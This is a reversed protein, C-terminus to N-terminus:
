SFFQVTAIGHARLPLEIESWAGEGPGFVAACARASLEELVEGLPDCLAARAVRGAVRLRVQSAQGDFEVLRVAFVTVTSDNTIPREISERASAPECWTATALVNHPEVSLAGMSEPLEGGGLIEASQVFRPNGLTCEMARRMRECDLMGAHPVIWLDAMLGADFSNEDLPDVSSLLHAVGGDIRSFAPSGDHVYLMGRSHDQSSLDVFRLSNFPRELIDVARTGGDPLAARRERDSPAVIREVGFPHDACVELDGALRPRLLMRLGCRAGVDPRPLEETQVRIWVADFLPEIAVQLTLTVGGRGTRRITLEDTEEEENQSTTVEAESFPEERGGRELSFELLPHAKDLLGEPFERTTIQEIVGRRRDVEVRMRGRVLAIRESNERVRVRGLPAVDLDYPDVVKYGFAPVERAVGSDHLVDRTWGLPNLVLHGGELGQVNRALQQLMREHVEQALALSREISSEAVAALRQERAAVAHHQALFLDRWSEELEWAPWEAAGPEVEPLRAVLSALAEAALLQEECWTVGRVLLDGNKAPAGGHFFQTSSFNRPLSDGLKSLQAALASFALATFEFRKDSRLSRLRALVAESRASECPLWVLLATAKPEKLAAELQAEWEDGSQLALSLAQAPVCMLESGDAGSWAISGAAERPVIAAYEELAPELGLVRAGMARLLQPLQPHGGVAGEWLELPRRGLLRQLVRAGLVRQRLTSESGHGSCEPQAFSAGTLELQGRELGARLDALVQPSRAALEEIGRADFDLACAAGHEAGAQLALELARQLVNENSCWQSGSWHAHVGLVVRLAKGM